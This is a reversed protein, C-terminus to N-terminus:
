YDTNLKVLTVLFGIQFIFIAALLPAEFYMALLGCPVSFGYGWAMARLENSDFNFM